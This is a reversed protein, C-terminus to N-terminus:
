ARRSSSRENPGFCLAKTTVFPSILDSTMRMKSWVKM